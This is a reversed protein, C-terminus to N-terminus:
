RSYLGRAYFKSGVSECYTQQNAHHGSPPSGPERRRFPFAADLSLRLAAQTIAIRVM